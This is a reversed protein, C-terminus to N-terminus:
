DSGLCPLQVASRGLALSAVLLQQEISTEIFQRSPLGFCKETFRSMSVLLLFDEPVHLTLAKCYAPVPVIACVRLGLRVLSSAPPHLLCALKPQVAFSELLCAFLFLIQQWLRKLLWM